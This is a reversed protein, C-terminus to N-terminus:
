KILKLVEKEITKKIIRWNANKLMVPSPDDDAKEFYILSKLIHLFSYDSDKYKKEFYNLLEFLKYDKLIFFLDVFDKKLGRDSIADLKMCAIDIPNALNINENYKIFPFLIKYNYKFFSIKVNDILIHLTDEEQSLIKVAFKKKIEKLIDQNNFNEKTFFDLDISKRHGYILALATGGALYFKTKIIELSGIEEFIRQTSKKITETHM